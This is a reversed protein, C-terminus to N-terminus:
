YATSDESLTMWDDQTSQGDRLRLLIARFEEAEPNNGAQRINESLMVVTQFLGYIYHGHQTLLSSSQSPSAYIPKDGVPPLQAFDGLLMVSIGGLPENLKGTAERLCKDVWALTWQGLMSMEDTILYQKGSFRLQLCQLATGQVDNNNHNRVPLQLASHLTCGDINYGALGTTGTLICTDGLPAKIANTLYSKGSGATGTIIVQLPEPPTAGNLAAHHSALINYALMQQRNLRAPDVTQQQRRNLVSPDELAENRGKTIWNASQRLLAPPMARATETWDFQLNEHSQSGQSITDDYRQNLRCLLMWEEPEGERQPVDEDDDDSNDDEHDHGNFRRAQEREQQLM